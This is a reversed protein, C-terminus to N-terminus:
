TLVGLIAPRWEAVANPGEVMQLTPEIATQLLSSLILGVILVFYVASITQIRKRRTMLDVVGGVVAEIMVGAFTLKPVIVNNGGALRTMRAALGAVVLIFVARIISLLM